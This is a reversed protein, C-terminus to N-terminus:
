ATTFLRFKDPELFHMAHRKQNWFGVKEFVELHAEDTVDVEARMFEAGGARGNRAALQLLNRSVEHHQSISNVFLDAVYMGKIGRWTSFNYTWACFGILADNEEAVEINLFGINDRLVQPSLKTEFKAGYEAFLSQIFGAVSEEQSERMRYCHVVM